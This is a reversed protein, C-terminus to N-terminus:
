LLIILSVHILSSLTRPLENLRPQWILVVVSKKAEQWTKLVKPDIMTMWCGWSQTWSRMQCPPQSRWDLTFLYMPRWHTLCCLYSVKCSFILGHIYWKTCLLIQLYRMFGAFFSIGYSTNKIRLTLRRKWCVIYLLITFRSTDIQLFFDRSSTDIFNNKGHKTLQKRHLSLTVTSTQVFFM